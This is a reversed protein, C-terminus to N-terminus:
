MIKVSTVSTVKTTMPMEQGGAGLNGKGEVTTKREKILGTTLDVISESSIKSDMTITLEAGQANVTKNISSLTNVIITGEAGNIKKLTYTNNIKIGNANSSDLWVEGAKKGAPLLMFVDAMGKDGNGSMIAQMAKAMDEDDIKADKKEIANGNFGIEMDKPQLNDKIAKGMESNMDEKKDSDFDMAPAMGGKTKVKMKNVTNTLLYGTTNVNKVELTGSVFSESITEMNQGMMEMSVNGNTTTTAVIKQGKNLIIRDTTKQGLSINAITFAAFILITNKKM